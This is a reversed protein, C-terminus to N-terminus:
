IISGVGFSRNKTWFSKKSSKGKGMMLAGEKPGKRKGGEGEGVM